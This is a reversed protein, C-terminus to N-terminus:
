DDTPIQPIPPFGSVDLQVPVDKKVSPTENNLSTDQTVESPNQTDSGGGSCGSLMIGILIISSYIVKKM